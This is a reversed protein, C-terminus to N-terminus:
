VTRGLYQGQGQQSHGHIALVLRVHGAAVTVVEALLEGVGGVRFVGDPSFKSPPQTTSLIWLGDASEDDDIRPGDAPHVNSPINSECKNRCDHGCKNQKQIDCTHM